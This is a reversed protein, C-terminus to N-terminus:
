DHTGKEPATLAAKATTNWRCMQCEHMAFCDVDHCVCTAEIGAQICRRLGRERAEADRLARIRNERWAQAEDDDDIGDPFGIAADVGSLDRAVANCAEVGAPSVNGRADREREAERVRTVLARILRTVDLHPIPIMKGDSGEVTKGMRWQVIFSESDMVVDQEDRSALTPDPHVVSGDPLQTGPQIAWENTASGSAPTPDPPTTM